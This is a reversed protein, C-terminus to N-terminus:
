LNVLIKWFIQARDSSLIHMSGGEGRRKSGVKMFSACHASVFSFDIKQNKKNKNESNEYLNMSFQCNKSCFHGCSSFFFRFNSKEKSEASEADKM